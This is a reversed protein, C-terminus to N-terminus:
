WLFCNFGSFVESREQLGCLASTGSCVAVRPNLSFPLGLTGALTQKGPTSAGPAMFQYVGKVPSEVFHELSFAPSFAHFAKLLDCDSPEELSELFGEVNDCPALVAGQFDFPFPCSSLFM